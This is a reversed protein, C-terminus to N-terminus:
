GSAGRFTETKKKEHDVATNPAGRVKGRPPQLQRSQQEKEQRKQEQEEEEEQQKQQEEQQKQQRVKAIQQEITGIPDLVDNKMVYERDHQRNIERKEKQEESLIRREEETMEKTPDIRAGVGTEGSVQGTLQEGLNMTKGEVKPLVNFQSSVPGASAKVEEESRIHVPSILETVHEPKQAATNGNQQGQEQPADEKVGYLQKVFDSPAPTLQGATSKATQTASKKVTHSVNQAGQEIAQGLQDFGGLIKPM